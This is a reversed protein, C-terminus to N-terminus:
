CLGPWSEGSGSNSHARGCKREVLSFKVKLIHGDIWGVNSRKGPLPRKLLTDFFTGM